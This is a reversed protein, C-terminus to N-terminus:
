RQAYTSCDALSGPVYRPSAGLKYRDYEINRCLAEKQIKTTKKARPEM